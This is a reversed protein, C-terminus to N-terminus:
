DRYNTFEFDFHLDLGKVLEIVTQLEDRKKGSVRVQNEQIQAQVKLKASKIEKVIRKATDQPIGEQVTIKQRLTSEAAAEATGYQLNKISVGRRVLKSKLVELVANLKYEDDGVVTIEDSKNWDIKCKSGRFDYRQGIEKIAQNVANDVEQLDTSVVIDFSPM